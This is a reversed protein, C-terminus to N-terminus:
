EDDCGEVKDESQKFWSGRAEWTGTFISYDVYMEKINWQNLYEIVLTPKVRDLESDCIATEWSVWYTDTHCTSSEGPCSAGQITSMCGESCERSEETGWSRHSSQVSAGSSEVWHNRCTLRPQTSPTSYQASSHEWVRGPSFTLWSVLSNLLSHFCIEWPTGSGLSSLTVPVMGWFSQQWGAVSIAQINFSRLLYKWGVRQLIRQCWISIFKCFRTTHKQVARVM